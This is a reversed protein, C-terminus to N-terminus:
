EIGKLLNICHVLFHQTKSWIKTLYELDYFFCDANKTISRWDIVETYLDASLGDVVKEINSVAVETNWGADVHLLLPKLGM